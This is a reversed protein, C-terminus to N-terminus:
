EEFRKKLLPLYQFITRDEFLNFEHSIKEKEFDTLKRKQSLEKETRTWYHHIRYECGKLRKSKFGDRLSQNEHVLCFEIAEPRHISKVNKNWPHKDDAKQFLKEILLEDEHLETVRSTGFVRWPLRLSGIHSHASKNLLSIFTKKGNVPVIFEDIDIIALWEAQGLARKKLCDNYAGLQFPIFSVDEIGYIAHEASSDWDILEVIGKEIYPQLIEAYGDTSDNNYLYFYTAGLLRHYEIWEKLWPGENKFMACIALKHAHSPPKEREFFWITFLICSALAFFSVLKKM